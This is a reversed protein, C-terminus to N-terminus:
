GRNELPAFGQMFGDLKASCVDGGIVKGQYVLLNALIKDGTDTPFNYIEYTYCKVSVGAYPLLDLGQMKQMNNYNEFPGSFDEPILVQRVEVPDESVDWDFQKLFAVRDENTEAATSYRFNSSVAFTGQGIGSFILAMLLSILLAVVILAILLRGKNSKFTLVFM